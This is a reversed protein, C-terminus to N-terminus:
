GEGRQAPTSVGFLPVPETGRSLIYEYQFPLVSKPIPIRQLTHLGMQPVVFPTFTQAMFQNGLVSSFRSRVCGM